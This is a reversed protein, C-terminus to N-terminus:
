VSVPKVPRRASLTSMVAHRQETSFAGWGAIEDMTRACGVCLGHEDIVCIQVCPTDIAASPLAALTGPVHLRRISM